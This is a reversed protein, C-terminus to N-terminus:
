KDEQSRKGPAPVEGDNAAEKEKALQVVTVKGDDATLIGLPAICFVFLSLRLRLSIRM